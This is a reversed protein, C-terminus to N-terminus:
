PSDRREIKAWPCLRHVEDALQRTLELTRARIAVGDGWLPTGVLVVLRGSRETAGRGFLRDALWAHSDGEYQTKQEDQETWVRSGEQTWYVVLHRDRDRSFERVTVPLLGSATALPEVGRYELNFGKNPWCVDPHHYGKVMNQSSWFIVWVNVEYGVSHRYIRHIATDYTLMGTVAEPIPAPSSKWAGIRDPIQELPASAVLEAEVKAGTIQAAAVAVVVIGLMVVAFRAPFSQGSRTYGVAEDRRELQKTQSCFSSNRTRMLKALGLVLLLGLLIMGIGLADHWRGQIYQQGAKEQLLGSLVVRVANVGAIVPISLGLMVLGRLFGIGSQYAVFAAIAALATVSRVGSCAEVVGLDGSPLTLLFGHREVPIGLVPLVAAASSTTVTQLLFQLPVLIRNPIPLAFLVFALPFALRRLHTWGGLLLVTGVALLEWAATVWWLIIPKPAVQVSLFWGVPFLVAGAAIPVLGFWTPRRPLQALVPRLTWVVWGAAALILFRDAYDPNAGWFQGLVWVVAGGLVGLLILAAPTSGVRGPEPNPIAM